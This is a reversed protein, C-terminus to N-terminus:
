ENGSANTMGRMCIARSSAMPRSSPDHRQNCTYTGRSPDQSTGPSPRVDGRYTYTSLNTILQLPLPERLRYINGGYQGYSENGALRVKEKRRM